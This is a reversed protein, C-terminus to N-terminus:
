PGNKEANLPITRKQQRRYVLMKRSKKFINKIMRKSLLLLIIMIYALFVFMYFITPLVVRATIWPHQTIPFILNGVIPAGQSGQDVPPIVILM